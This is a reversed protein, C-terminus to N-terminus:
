DIRKMTIEYLEKYTKKNRPNLDTPNYRFNNPNGHWFDGFFEYVTNTEKIFADVKMRTGDVTLWKQRQNELIKLSDLWEQEMMSTSFTACKQCGNGMLHNHPKQEFIGHIYCKIKILKNIGVYKTADYDYRTGHVKQAKNIFAGTTMTRKKNADKVKKYQCGKCGSALKPNLHDYPKVSFEGHNKCVIIIKNERGYIIHNLDVKSYDYLNGYLQNAGDYFNAIKLRKIKACTPCGQGNYIHAQAMQLFDGHELCTIIVKKKIGEFKTKQYSYRDGHIQHSRSLFEKQSLRQKIQQGNM